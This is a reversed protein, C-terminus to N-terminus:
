TTVSICPTPATEHFLTRAKPIYKPYQEVYLRILEAVEIKGQKMQAKYQSVDILFTNGNAKSVGTFFYGKCGTVASYFAAQRWYGYQEFKEVFEAKTKTATTKLDHGYLKPVHADPKVKVPVLGDWLAYIDQEYLTKPNKLFTQLVSCKRACSALKYIDNTREAAAMQNFLHPQYVALHVLQGTRLTQAGVNFSPLGFLKNRFDSLGSNNLVPVQYYDKSVLLNLRQM